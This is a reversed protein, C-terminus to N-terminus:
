PLGQVYIRVAEKMFRALDPHFQRFTKQFGPHDNYAEALGLLIEKTPEYFYRLNQHWRGILAQV